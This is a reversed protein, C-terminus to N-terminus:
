NQQLSSGEKEKAQRAKYIAKGVRPFNNKSAKIAELVLDIIKENNFIVIEPKPTIVIKTQQLANEIKALTDAPCKIWYCKILDFIASYDIQPPQNVFFIIRIKESLWKRLEDNIRHNYGCHPCTQYETRPSEPTHPECIIESIFHKQSYTLGCVFCAKPFSEIGETTM